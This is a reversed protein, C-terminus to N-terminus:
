LLRLLIPTGKKFVFLFGATNALIMPILGITLIMGAGDWAEMPLMADPNAVYTDHACYPIAFYVLCIIGILNLFILLPSFIKHKM